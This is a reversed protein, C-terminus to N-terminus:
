WLFAIGKVSFFRIIIIGFFSRFHFLRKKLTNQAYTNGRRRGQRHGRASSPRRFFIVPVIRVLGIKVDKDIFGTVAVFPEIAKFSREFFRILFMREFITFRAYLDSMGGIHAREVGRLNFFRFVIDEEEFVLM